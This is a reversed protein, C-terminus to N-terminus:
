SPRITAPTMARRVRGHQDFRLAKPLVHRLWTTKGTGRPGFLFFSRSPVGLLRTYTELLIVAFTSAVYVFLGYRSPSGSPIALPPKM